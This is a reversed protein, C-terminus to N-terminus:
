AHALVSCRGWSPNRAVDGAFRASEKRNERDATARSSRAEEAFADRIAKGVTRPTLPKTKEEM